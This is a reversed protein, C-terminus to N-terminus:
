KQCHPGNCSTPGASSQILFGSGRLICVTDRGKNQSMLRDPPAGEPLKGRRVATYEGALGSPFILSPVTIRGAGVWVM